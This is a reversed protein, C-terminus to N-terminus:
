PKGNVTVNCKNSVIMGTAPLRLGGIIAEAQGDNYMYATDLENHGSELFKHVMQGSLQADARAGFSMSGLLTVPRKSLSM